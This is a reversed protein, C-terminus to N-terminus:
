GASVRMLQEMLYELSELIEFLRISEPGIKSVKPSIRSAVGAQAVAVSASASSRAHSRATLAFILSALRVSASALRTTPPLTNAAGGTKPMARRSSRNFLLRPSRSYSTSTARGSQSGPWRSACRTSASCCNFSLSAAIPTARNARAPSNRAATQASLAASASVAMARSRTVNASFSCASTARRSDAPSRARVSKSNAFSSM